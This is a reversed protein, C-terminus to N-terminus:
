RRPVVPAAGLIPSGIPAGVATGQAFAALLRPLGVYSADMAEPRTPPTLLQDTELTSLGAAGAAQRVERELDRLQEYRPAFEERAWERAFEHLLDAAALHAQAKEVVVQRRQEAARDRKKQEALEAQEAPAIAALEARLARAAAEHREAELPLEELRFTLERRIGSAMVSDQGELEALQAETATIRERAARGKSEVDALQTRIAAARERASMTAATMAGKVLPKVGFVRGFVGGAFFLIAPGVWNSPMM